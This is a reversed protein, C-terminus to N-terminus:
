LKMRATGILWLYTAMSTEVETSKAEPQCKNLVCPQKM